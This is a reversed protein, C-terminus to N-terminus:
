LILHVELLFQPKPTRDKPNTTCSLIVSCASGIGLVLFFLVDYPCAKFNYEM